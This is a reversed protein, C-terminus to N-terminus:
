GGRRRAAKALWGGLHGAPRVAIRRTVPRRGHQRDEAAVTLGLRDMEARYEQVQRTLRVDYPSIRTAHERYISLSQEKIRVVSAVWALRVAYKAHAAAGKLERLHETLAARAESQRLSGSHSVTTASVADHLVLLVSGPDQGLELSRGLAKEQESIQAQRAGLAQLRLRDRRNLRAVTL